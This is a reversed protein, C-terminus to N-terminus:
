QLWIMIAAAIGIVRGLSLFIRLFIRMSWRFLRLTNLGAIGNKRQNDWYYTYRPETNISKPIKSSLWIIIKSYTYKRIGRAKSIKRFIGDGRADRWDKHDVLGMSFVWLRGRIFIIFIKMISFFKTFECRRFLGACMNSANQAEVVVSFRWINWSSTFATLSAEHMYTDTEDERIFEYEYTHTLYVTKRWHRKAIGWNYFLKAKRM